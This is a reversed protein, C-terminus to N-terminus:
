RLEILNPALHSVEVGFGVELVELLAELEGTEFRGGVELNKLEANAIDIEVETYRSIEKVVLELPEGAFILIGRRWALNRALDGSLLKQKIQTDQAYVAKEGRGLSLFNEGESAAEYEESGAPYSVSSFEEVPRQSLEVRGEEVTVVISEDSLHVAFATGVAKVRGFQTSVEFPRSPNQEVDFFAKGRILTIHRQQESYRTSIASNTDLQVISGDALAITKLEGIRTEYFSPERDSSNFLEIPHLILVILLSAAFSIGFSLWVRNLMIKKRSTSVKLVALEDADCWTAEVQKLQQMHEPSQSAWSQLAEIDELSPATDQNFRLVWERAERRIADRHKM